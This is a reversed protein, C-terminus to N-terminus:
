NWNSMVRVTKKERIMPLKKQPDEAKVEIEYLDDPAVFIEFDPDNIVGSWNQTQTGTQQLEEFILTRVTVGYLKFITITVTAPKSLKYSITTMSGTFVGGNDYPYFAGPKIQLDYLLPYQWTITKTISNNTENSETIKNESDAVIKVEYTCPSPSITFTGPITQGLKLVGTFLLTKQQVGNLFLSISHSGANANGDNKLIFGITTLESGMPSSPSVSLNTIKLDPLGACNFTYTGINNNENEELVLGGSLYVEQENIIYSAPPDVVIKITNTDASFFTASCSGTKSTWPKLEDFRIGNPSILNGNVYVFAFFDNFSSAQTDNNKVEFYITATEGAVPFPPDTYIRGITLDSKRVDFQTEKKNNEESKENIVNTTDVKAKIKVIGGPLITNFRITFSGNTKLGTNWTGVRTCFYKNENEIYIEYNFPIAPVFANGTNKIVISVETSTGGISPSPNVTISGVELDSMVSEDTITIEDIFAGNYTVNNIGSKFLFLMAFQDTQNYAELDFVAQTWTGYRGSDIMLRSYSEGNNKIAYVSLFDDSPESDLWYWFSLKPFNSKSLDLLYMNYLYTNANTGYLLNIYGHHSRISGTGTHGEIDKHDKHWVYSWQYLPDGSHNRDGTTFRKMAEQSDFREKFIETSKILTSNQPSLASKPAPLAKIKLEGSNLIKNIEEAKKLLHEIPKVKIGPIIYDNKISEIRDKIFDLGPNKDVIKQLIEVSEEWEMEREYEMALHFMDAIDTSEIINFQTNPQSGNYGPAYQGSKNIMPIYIAKDNEDKKIQSSKPIVENSEVKVNTFVIERYPSVLIPKGMEPEAYIPKIGIGIFFIIGWCIKRM